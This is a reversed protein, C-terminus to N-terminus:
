VPPAPAGTAVATAAAGTARATALAHLQAEADYLGGEVVSHTNATTYQLTINPEIVADLTPWNTKSPRAYQNPHLNLFDSLQSISLPAGTVTFLTQKVKSLRVGTNPDLQQTNLTLGGRRIIAHAHSEFFDHRISFLAPNSLCDHLFESIELQRQGQYKGYLREKMWDSALQLSPDRLCFPLAEPRQAALAAKAAPGSILERKAKEALHVQQREAAKLPESDFVRYHLLMSSYRHLGDLNGDRTEKVIAKLSCKDLVDTLRKHLEADTLDICSRLNGGYRESRLNFVVQDLNARYAEGRLLARPNDAPLARDVAEEAQTPCTLRRCEELITLPVVPLYRRELGVKKSVWEKVPESACTSPSGVAVINAKCVPLVVTKGAPADAGSLDILLHAKANGLDLQFATEATDPSAFTIDALTLSPATGGSAPAGRMRCFRNYGYSFYMVTDRDQGAIPHLLEHLHDLLFTSQVDCTSCLAILVANLVLSHPVRPHQMTRNHSPSCVKGVGANGSILVGKSVLASHGESVRERKAFPLEQRLRAYAPQRFLRSGFSADAFLYPEPQNAPWNADVARHLRLLNDAPVQAGQPVVDSPPVYQSM